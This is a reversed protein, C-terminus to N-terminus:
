LADGKYIPAIGLVLERVGKLPKIILFRIGLTPHRLRQEAVHLHGIAQLFPLIKKVYFVSSCGSTHQVVEQNRILSQDPNDVHCAIVGVSLCSGSAVPILGQETNRFRDNRLAIRGRQELLKGAPETLHHLKIGEGQDQVVCRGVGHAQM